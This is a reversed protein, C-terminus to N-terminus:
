KLTSVTFSETLTVPLPKPAFKGSITLKSNQTSTGGLYLGDPGLYYAENGTGTGEINAPGNPTQQTGNVSATFTTEIKTAKVGNRAESGTAKYNTIRKIAMSGGGAPSTSETTDAWGDGVKVGSRVKPFLQRVVGTLQPALPSEHVPAITDLRGGAAVFGHLAIGRASDLVAQPVPTTSDGRMSDVVAHLARGGASDNLTITLYTSVTFRQRQESGGIASADLVQEITQDVRYHTTTPKAAAAGSIALAGLGLVKYLM